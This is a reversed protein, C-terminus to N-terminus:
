HYASILKLSFIIIIYMTIVGACKDGTTTDDHHLTVEIGYICQEKISPYRYALVFSSFVRCSLGNKSVRGGQRNYHYFTIWKLHMESVSLERLLYIM